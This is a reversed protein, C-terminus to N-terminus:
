LVQLVSCVPPAVAIEGVGRKFDKFVTFQALRLRFGAHNTQLGLAAAKCRPPM